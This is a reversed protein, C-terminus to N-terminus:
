SLMPKKSWNGDKTEQVWWENLNGHTGGDTFWLTESNTHTFFRKHACKTSGLFPYWEIYIGSAIKPLVGEGNNYFVAMTKSSDYMVPLQIIEGNQHKKYKGSIANLYTNISDNLKKQEEELAKRKAIEAPAILMISKIHTSENNKLNTFGYEALNKINDVSTAAGLIAEAQKRGSAQLLLGYIFSIQKIKTIEAAPLAPNFSKGKIQNELYAKQQANPTWPM